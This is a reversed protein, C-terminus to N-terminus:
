RADEEGVAKGSRLMKSLTDPVPDFGGRGFPQCRALRRVALWSGGLVGRKSIAEAAYESCTPVFRCLPLFFPSMCRQYLRIVAVMGRALM